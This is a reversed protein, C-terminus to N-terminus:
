LDFRLHQLEEHKFPLFYSSKMFDYVAAAAAHWVRDANSAGGGDPSKEKSHGDCWGRDLRLTVGRTKCWSLFRCRM